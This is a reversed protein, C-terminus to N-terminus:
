SHKYELVLTSFEFDTRIQFFSAGWKTFIEFHIYLASKLFFTILANECTMLANEYLIWNNM